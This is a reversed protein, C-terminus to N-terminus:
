RFDRSFEFQRLKNIWILATERRRPAAANMMVAPMIPLEPTDIGVLRYVEGSYRMTDGDIV